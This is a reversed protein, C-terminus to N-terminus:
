LLGENPKPMHRPRAATLMRMYWGLYLYDDDLHNDEPNWRRTPQDSNVSTESTQVAEMMLAILVRFRYYVWILRCPAAVLFAAMKMGVATLVEPWLRWWKEVTEVGPSHGEQRCYRTPRLWATILCRESWKQGSADRLWKGVAGWSCRCGTGGRGLVFNISKSSVIRFPFIESRNQSKYPFRTQLNWHARSYASYTLYTYSLQKMSRWTTSRVCDNWVHQLAARWRKLFYCVRPASEKTLLRYDSSKATLSSIWWTRCFGFTWQRTSM